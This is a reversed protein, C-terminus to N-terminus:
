DPNISRYRRRVTDYHISMSYRDMFDLYRASAQEVDNRLYDAIEAYILNGLESFETEGKIGACLEDAIDLDGQLANLHALRYTLLPTTARVRGGVAAALLAIAESRRNQKLLRESEVMVDYMEPEDDFRKVFDTLELLDNFHPDSTGLAAMLGGAVALVSDRDASLFVLEVEKMELLNLEERSTVRAKSAQLSVAAQSLDGKALWIDVQRISIRPWYERASRNALANDLDTLAGDFDDLMRYKIDSLQISALPHQWKNAVSDYLVIASRLDAVSSDAINIYPTQFFYNEPYFGSVVLNSQDIQSQKLYIDALDLVAAQAIAGSVPQELLEELLQRALEYEQEDALLLALERLEPPSANISKHLAVAEAYHRHKFEVRALIRLAVAGGMARLKTRQLELLDEEIPLQLLQNTIMQESRPDSALHILYEDSALDYNLRAAYLRGIELAFFAPENKSVRLQALLDRGEDLLNGLLMHSLVLREATPNGAFMNLLHEWADMAMDQRGLALYADGIEVYSQIDGPQIQLHDEIVQILEAHRGMRRLLQKLRLYYRTNRPHDAVLQAYIGLAQDFNGAKELKVALAYSADAMERPRDATNQGWAPIQTLLLLAILTCHKATSGM